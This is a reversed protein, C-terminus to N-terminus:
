RRRLVHKWSKKREISTLIFIALGILLMAMGTLPVAMNIGTFALTKLGAFGEVEIGEEPTDPDEPDEPDEPPTKENVVM